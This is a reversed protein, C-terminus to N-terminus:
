VMKDGQGPGVLGLVVQGSGRGSWQSGSGGRVQLGYSRPGGSGESRAGRGPWLGESM